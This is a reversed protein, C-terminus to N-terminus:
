RFIKSESELEMSGLIGLELDPETPTERHPFLSIYLPPDVMCPTVCIMANWLSCAWIFFRCSSCSWLGPKFM